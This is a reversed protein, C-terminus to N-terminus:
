ISSKGARSYRGYSVATDVGNFEGWEFDELSTKAALAAYTVPNAIVAGSSSMFKSQAFFDDVSVPM